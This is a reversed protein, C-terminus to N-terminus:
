QFADDGATKVLLFCWLLRVPSAARSTDLFTIQKGGACSFLASCDVRRDMLFFPFIWAAVGPRQQVGAHALARTVHDVPGLGPGGALRRGSGLPWLGWEGVVGYQISVAARERPGDDKRSPDMGSRGDQRFAAGVSCLGGRAGTGHVGVSGTVGGQWWGVMWATVGARGVHEVGGGRRKKGELILPLSGGSVPPAVLSRATSPVCPIPHPLKRQESGKEKTNEVGGVGRTDDEGEACYYFPLRIFLCIFINKM